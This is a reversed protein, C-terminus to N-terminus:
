DLSSQNGHNLKYVPHNPKHIIWLVELNCGMYQTCCNWFWFCWSGRGGGMLWRHTLKVSGLIQYSKDNNTNGLCIGELSQLIFTGEGHWFDQLYVLHILLSFFYFYTHTQKLKTTPAWKVLKVLPFATKMNEQCQHLLSLYDGQKM